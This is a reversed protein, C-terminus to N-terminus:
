NRCWLVGTRINRTLLPM